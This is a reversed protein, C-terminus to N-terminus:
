ADGHAVAPAPAAAAQSYHNDIEILRDDIRTLELEARLVDQQNRRGVAYLSRTITVLPVEGAM